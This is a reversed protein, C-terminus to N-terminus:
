RQLRRSLPSGIRDSEGHNEFAAAPPGVAAEATVRDDQLDISRARFAGGTKSQRLPRCGQSNLQRRIGPFVECRGFLGLGTQLRSGGGNM